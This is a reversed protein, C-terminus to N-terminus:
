RGAPGSPQGSERKGDYRLKRGDTSRVLGGAATLIADGAAIDWAMTAGHRVHIDAQGEALMGFKIASSAPMMSSVGCLKLAAESRADGNHRSVLARPATIAPRDLVHLPEAAGVPNMDHDLTIGFCTEGAYWARGLAPAVIAGAVAHGKHIAALCVCFEPARQLFDRTGDLPDLLLFTDADGGPLDEGEESVLAADVGMSALSRRVAADAAHDAESVPSGDRKRTHDVKGCWFTMLTRAGELAADFLKFGLDNRMMGLLNPPILPLVPM